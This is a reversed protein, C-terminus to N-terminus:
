RDDSMGSHHIGSCFEIFVNADAMMTDNSRMHPDPTARPKFVAHRDGTVGADTAVIPEKGTTDDTSLRLIKGVLARRGLDDDSIAIDESFACRDITSRLLILPDCRDTAMTIKHGGRVDGVIAHDFVSHNGGIVHHETTVYSDFMIGSETAANGNM